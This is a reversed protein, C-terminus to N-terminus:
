MSLELVTLTVFLYLAFLWWRDFLCGFLLLLSLVVLLLLVGRITHRFTSFRRKRIKRPFNQAVKSYFIFELQSCNQAPAPIGTDGYPVSLGAGLCRWRWVVLCMLDVNAVLM